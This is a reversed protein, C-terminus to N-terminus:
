AVGGLADVQSAKRANCPECLAQLNDPHHTGGNRRSVIHDAILMVKGHTYEDPPVGEVGCKKCRRGDREIVLNRLRRHLPIKGCKLRGRIQPVPWTKGEGDTWLVANM